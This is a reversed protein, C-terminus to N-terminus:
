PGIVLNRAIGGMFGSLKEPERVDGRRIKELAIRFTEQYL